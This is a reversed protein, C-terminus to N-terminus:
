SRGFKFRHGAIGSRRQGFKTKTRGVSSGVGPASPYGSALSQQVTYHPTTAKEPALMTKFQTSEVSLDPRFRNCDGRTPRKWFKPSRRPGFRAPIPMYQGPNSCERYPARRHGNRAARLRKRARRRGQGSRPRTHDSKQSKSRMPGFKARPPGFNARCRGVNHAVGASTPEINASTARFGVSRHSKSRPKGLTQRFQAPPPQMKAIQLLNLEM